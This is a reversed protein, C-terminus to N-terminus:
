VSAAATASCTWCAVGALISPRWAVITESTSISAPRRDRPWTSVLVCRTKSSSRRSCAPRPAGTLGDRLDIGEATAVGKETRIFIGRPRVLEVLLETIEDLRRAIGLGTVQVSLWEAYRDVILGSLGDAESFVLRAAGQPDVLGLQKRLELATQLRHTWFARDLAEGVDWTYLRVRIRSRSNFIGRAVFKGVDSILDVVDGDAATGDIRAVASDLVWPHRGYFPRAKRPKLIAQAVAFGPATEGAESVASSSAEPFVEPPVESM